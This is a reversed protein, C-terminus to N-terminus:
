GKVYWKSLENPGECLTGMAVQGWLTTYRNVAKSVLSQGPTPNVDPDWGTHSYHPQKTM